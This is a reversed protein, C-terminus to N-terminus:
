LIVSSYKTKGSQPPRFPFASLVRTTITIIIIITITIIIIIIIIISIIIIIIIIIILNLEWGNGGRCSM